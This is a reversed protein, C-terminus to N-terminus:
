ILPSARGGRDNRISARNARRAGAPACRTACTRITALWRRSRRIPRFRATNRSRREMILRDKSLGFGELVPLAFDAEGAAGSAGLRANGGTFVVRLNPYRHALEAAAIVRGISPGFVAAGHASSIDPEIAGGLVVIGDPAGRSDDWSPFRSELPYLLWKGIPSFGCVVMLLVCTVVLKRGLAVFRTLLLLLGVVGVGIILNSPLLVVGVTKSLLFFL